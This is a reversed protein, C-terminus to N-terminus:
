TQGMHTHLDAPVFVLPCARNRLDSAFEPPPLHTFLGLAVICGNRTRSQESVQSNAVAVLCVVLVLLLAVKLEAM